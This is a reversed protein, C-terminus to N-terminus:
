DDDDAVTLRQLFDPTSHYGGDENSVRIGKRTTVEEKSRTCLAERIEEDFEELMVTKVAWEHGFENASIDDVPYTRLQNFEDVKTEGGEKPRAQRYEKFPGLIQRLLVDHSM